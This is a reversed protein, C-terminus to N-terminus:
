RPAAEGEPPTVAREEEVRQRIADLIGNIFRGSDESGFRKAIEIAEDLVVAIPTAQDHLMEYVAMRLTNRDVVAMREIRWNSAALVIRQDLAERDAIVGRVLRETFDRVDPEADLNAWFGRLVTEPSDGTLDIQFLVQVAYERARRRHGM